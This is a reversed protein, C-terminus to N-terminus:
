KNLHMSNRPALIQFVTLVVSGIKILQRYAHRKPCFSGDFSLSSHSYAVQTHTHTHTHPPPVQKIHERKLYKQSYYQEQRLSLLQQHQLEQLEQLRSEGDQELQQLEGEQGPSACSSCVRVCDWVCMCLWVCVLVFVWGRM